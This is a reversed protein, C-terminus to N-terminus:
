IVKLGYIFSVKVDDTTKFKDETIENLDINLEEALTTDNLRDMSKSRKEKLRKIDDISLLRM